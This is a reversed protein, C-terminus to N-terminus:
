SARELSESATTDYSLSSRNGPEPTLQMFRENMPPSLPCRFRLTYSGGPGRSQRGLGTQQAATMLALGRTALFFKM